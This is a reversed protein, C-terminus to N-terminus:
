EHRDKENPHVGVSISINDYGKVLELMAPYSELDISVCLMHDVQAAEIEKILMDFDNDHASLDLRDLHCHSDIFM